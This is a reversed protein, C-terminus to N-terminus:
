KLEGVMYRLLVPGIEEGVDGWEALNVETYEGMLFDGGKYGEYTSGLAEVASSLMEGVTTNPLPEFALENYSARYSHPNHFGLPVEIDPDRAELFEILEKLIM